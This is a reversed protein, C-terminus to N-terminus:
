VAHGNCEYPGQCVNAIKHYLFYLRDRVKFTAPIHHGLLQLGGVPVYRAMPVAFPPCLRLSEQIVARLYPMKTAQNYQVPHTITGDLYATDIQQVLKALKDPHKM